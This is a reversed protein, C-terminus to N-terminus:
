GSGLAKAGNARITSSYKFHFPTDNARGTPDQDQKQTQPHQCATFVSFFTRLFFGRLLRFLRHRRLGRCRNFLFRQGSRVPLRHFPFQQLGYLLQPLGPGHVNGGGPQFRGLHIHFVKVILKHRFPGFHLIGIVQRDRDPLPLQGTPKGIHGIFGPGKRLPTGPLLDGGKRGKKRRCLAMQPLALCGNANRVASQLRVPHVLEQPLHAASIDQACQVGIGGFKHVARRGPHSQLLTHLGQGYRVSQRLLHHFLDDGVAHGLHFLGLGKIGVQRHVHGVVLPVIRILGIHGIGGLGSHPRQPITRGDAAAIGVGQLQQILLNVDRAISHASFIKLFVM